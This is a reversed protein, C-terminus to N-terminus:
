ALERLRHAICHLEDQDLTEHLHNLWATEKENVAIFLPNEDADRVVRISVAVPMSGGNKHRRVTEFVVLGRELVQQFRRSWEQRGDNPVILEDLTRGIALRKEYGFINKAGHSWFYVKGDPSLAILADPSEEVLTEAFGVEDPSSM